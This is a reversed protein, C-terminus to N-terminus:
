SWHITIIWKHWPSWTQVSWCSPRISTHREAPMASNNVKTSFRLSTRLLIIRVMHTVICEKGGKTEWDCQISHKGVVARHTHGCATKQQLEQIDAHRLQQHPAVTTGLTYPLHPSIVITHLLSKFFGYSTALISSVSYISHQNTSFQVPVSSLM